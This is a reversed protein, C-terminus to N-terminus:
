GADPVLRSRFLDKKSLFRKEILEYSAWSTLFTLGIITPYAILQYIPLSLRAYFLTHFLLVFLPHYVYISYSLKGLYETLRNDLIRPLSHASAVYYILVAFAFGLLTTHIVGASPAVFVVEYVIFTLSLALITCHEFIRLIKWQHYYAYATLAGLAILDYRSMQVFATLASVPLLASLILFLWWVSIILIVIKVAHAKYRVLVPALLYYQEEVGISWLHEFPPFPFFLVFALNGMFFILLFLLEPRYQPHLLAIVGFLYLFYVPYIRLARRVYFNRISVKGTRERENLLLYTILFGSLIFFLNVADSGNLFFRELTIPLLPVGFWDHPSYSVHQVVVSLAAYLRLTNFGRFYAVGKGTGTM